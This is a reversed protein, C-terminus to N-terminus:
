VSPSEFRRIDTGGADRVVYNGPWTGKLGEVLQVAQEVTACSEVHVFGGNELQKLVRYISPLLM